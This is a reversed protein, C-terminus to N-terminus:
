VNQNWNSTLYYYRATNDTTSIFETSCVGKKLRSVQPTTLEPYLYRVLNLIVKASIPQGISYETHLRTLVAVVKKPLRRRRPELIRNPSLQKTYVDFPIYANPDILSAFPNYVKTM